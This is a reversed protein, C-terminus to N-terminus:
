GPRDPLGQEAILKEEYAIIEQLKMLKFFDEFGPAKMRNFTEQVSGRANLEEMLDMMARTAVFLLEVPHTVIGRVGMERLEDPTLDSWAGLLLWLPTKIERTLAEFEQRSWLLPMVLDAGAEAYVQCRKIQEALSIIDADTRAAIIFDADERADLAAKLKIVMEEIPVIKKYRKLSGCMVPQLQDEIFLGAAGAREFERVTRQINAIGGYGAEGDVLIPVNVAAAINRAQNVVETMTLLGADPKGLLSASLGFGSLFIAKFGANEIIRASLADFAGPVTLLKEEALYKRLLATMKM